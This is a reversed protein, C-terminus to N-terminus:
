EFRNSAFHAALSTVGSEVATSRCSLELDLNTKEGVNESVDTYNTRLNTDQTAAPDKQLLCCLSNVRSMLSLEDSAAIALSDNLLYQTIEDLIMKHQENDSASASNGSIMQESICNGIHNVIDNMSMSPHLEPVKIQDLNNLFKLTGAERSRQQKIRLPEM